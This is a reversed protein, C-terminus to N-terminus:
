KVSKAKAAAEAKQALKLKETLLKLQANQEEIKMQLKHQQEKQAQTMEFQLQRQATRQAHSERTNAAKAEALLKDNEIKALAEPDAGGAQSEAQAKENIRQAFGKVMNMMQGMKGGIEAVRQKENPDQAIIAVHQAINNSINQLGIVEDMTGVNDTSEIKKIILAMSTMLSDVYEIHNMGTKLAVPLGLMLTGAALQADHVADTVKVPSQPVLTEARASDGTILLTVDRLIQRQPEPDYLNRYEMLQQAIAMEVTKNGAGMVREPEIDWSSAELVKEPVGARLVKLRFERVDPDSSNKKFFRRFIERYEPIQYFYAQTLGASVLGSVANTEAMVQFKTKEVGESAAGTQTTYSSSNKAILSRNENLGLEALTTNVQYRDQAPVFQVSDDIFGRNVMDVKLARQYDEQNKVRFYVMLQEFVAENFKCRLRNQLHCVAYLLFGLSRVSHYRFPAVASLDAFQWTVIESRHNAFKRAGPNYLFNDDGQKAREYLGGARRTMSVQGAANMSPNSWADLVMRRNWGQVKKDDNWFYFDWVNVTPVSDGAYIGGDGKIREAMKEPSWIEPWNNNMLGVTEKDVWELCRDVMGQNWAPDPKPGKALKILEMASYSRYIAFMPLNDMTLLTNGPVLVDEVGFPQPCWHDADRFGSPAIGHLVTLAFKSRFCEFYPLSRKMIKNMESTVIQSYETRKHKPGTDTKATFYQGPKLFAGYFQSRADHALRTGELDNVNVNIGNAEVEDSTYPPVGNMLNNIRTRNTARPFDSQKLQFCLSEVDSATDFTM